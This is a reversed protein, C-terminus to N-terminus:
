RASRVASRCSQRAAYPRRGSAGSAQRRWCRVRLAGTSRPKSLFTARRCTPSPGALRRLGNSSNGRFGASSGRGRSTSSPSRGSSDRLRWAAPSASRNSLHTEYRTGYINHLDALISTGSLVRGKGLGLSNLTTKIFHEM